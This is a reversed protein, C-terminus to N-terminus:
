TMAIQRPTHHTRLVLERHLLPVALVQHLTPKESIIRQMVGFGAMSRVIRTGSKTKPLTCRACCVITAAPPLPNFTARVIRVSPPSDNHKPNAPPYAPRRSASNACFSPNFEKQVHVFESVRVQVIRTEWFPSAVTILSGPIGTEFDSQSCSCCSTLLYIEEDCNIHILPLKGGLEEASSKYPSNLM